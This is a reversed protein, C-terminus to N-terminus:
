IFARKTLVLILVKLVNLVFSPARGSHQMKTSQLHKIILLICIDASYCQLFRSKQFTERMHTYIRTM